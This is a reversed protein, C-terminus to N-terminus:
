ITCELDSFHVKLLPNLIWTEKDCHHQSCPLPPSSMKNTFSYFFGQDSLITLKPTWLEMAIWVCLLAWWLDMTDSNIKRSTLDNDFGQADVSIKKSVLKEAVPKRRNSTQSKQGWPSTWANWIDTQIKM